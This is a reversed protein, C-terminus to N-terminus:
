TEKMFQAIKPMLTRRMMLLETPIIKAVADRKPPTTERLLLVKKPKMMISVTMIQIPLAAVSTDASALGSFKLKGFKM